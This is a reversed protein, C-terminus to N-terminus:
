IDEGIMLGQISNPIFVKDASNKSITDFGDLYKQSTLLQTAGERSCSEALTSLYISEAETILSLAKARGEARLIAAQKDKKLRNVEVVGPISCIYASRFNAQLLGIKM